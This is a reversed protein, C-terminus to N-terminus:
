QDFYFHVVTFLALHLCCAVTLCVHMYHLHENSYVLFRLLGVCAVKSWEDDILRRPGGNPSLHKYSM